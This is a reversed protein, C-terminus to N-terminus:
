SEPKRNPHIIGCRLLLHIAGLTDKPELNLALM